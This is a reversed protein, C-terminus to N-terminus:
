SGLNQSLWDIVEEANKDPPFVPYFAKEIQGDTIILTLRKILKMSEIEFTPLRLSSAFELKEDSLLAFPLHLRAVAERQYGTDQTSLGFM